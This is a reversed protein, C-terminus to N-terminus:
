QYNMVSTFEEFLVDLNAKAADSVEGDVNTGGNNGSLYMAECVSDM